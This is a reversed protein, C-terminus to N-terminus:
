SSHSALWLLAAQFAPPYPAEFHLPQGSEPHSFALARAHLALTDLPLGPPTPGGYLDDGLIPLGCAALHARIQHTRGTEPQAEVLVAQPYRELVRLRTIAPKGHQPDVVTRHRRDGNPRLPLDLTTEDWGPAGSVLAHYWKHLQRQEFLTNLLRHMPASRALVLIGSTEKDLRHVMWLRGYQPELLARVHPLAPNYGDPLSRLGAPKDIVLLTADVWLIHPAGDM